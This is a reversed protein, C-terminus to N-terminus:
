GRRLGGGAGCGAHPGRDAGRAAPEAARELAPWGHPLPRGLVGPHIARSRRPRPRPLSEDPWQALSRAGLALRTATIAFPKRSLTRRLRDCYRVLTDRIGACTEVDINM